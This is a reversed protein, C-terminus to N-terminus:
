KGCSRVFDVCQRIEPVSNEWNYEYEISINGAFKQRKLEDLIARINLVGTGFPVDRKDKENGRVNRDKLHVSIIRGKLLKVCEPESDVIARLLRENERLAAEALKRRTIDRAYH